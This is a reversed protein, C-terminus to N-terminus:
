YSWHSKTSRKTIWSIFDSDEKINITNESLESNIVKIIIGDKHYTEENNYAPFHETCFHPNISLILKDALIQAHYYHEYEEQREITNNRSFIVTWM